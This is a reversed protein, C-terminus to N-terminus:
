VVGMPPRCEVLAGEYSRDDDERVNWIGPEEWGDRYLWGLPVDGLRAIIAGDVPRAVPPWVVPAPTGAPAKKFVELFGDIPYSDRLRGGGEGIFEVAGGEVRTVVVPKPRFGINPTGKRIWVQDAEVSSM